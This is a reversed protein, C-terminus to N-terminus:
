AQLPATPGCPGAPKLSSTLVLATAAPEVQVLPPVRISMPKSAFLLPTRSAPSIAEVDYTQLPRIRPLCSTAVATIEGPETQTAPPTISDIPKSPLPLLTRSALSTTECCLRQLPWFPAVPVGPAVPLASSAVCVAIEGPAVQAVPPTTTEM